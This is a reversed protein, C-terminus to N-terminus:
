HPKQNKVAEKRRMLLRRLFGVGQKKSPVIALTGVAANNDAKQKSDSKVNTATSANGNNNSQFKGDKIPSRLIIAKTPDEAIMQDRLSFRKSLNKNATTSVSTKFVKDLLAEERPTALAKLQKGLNLITEQCEALKLSAATIESSNQSQTGDGNISHNMTEKKAVSELQLQLELCTAELEECCNSKEELEVELSSLKQLVENLKAKAVTLQTDLDENMCKHNEMQDEIIGKSEKTTELEVQLNKISQESEQLQKMLTENKGIATQLKGDMAELDDKLRKNEEQLNYQISKSQSSINQDVLPLSSPKEVDVGAENESQSENQSFHRKIKDRANSADKPNVHNNLIWDLTFSLEEALSQLDTKGNLVANCTHVFRQLVASLESGKWQFVHVFYDAAIPSRSCSEEKKSMNDMTSNCLQPMPNIGEILQIIKCITKSLKSREKLSSDVGSAEILSDINPSMAATDAEPISSQNIYGLAIKIDELLETPSRKSIRQQKFIASLVEQLWDFSKDKSCIEQKDNVPVLEKGDSVSHNSGASSVLALKEMEVFDDMLSMDSKGESPSKFRADRFHELESILANAWSGSSSVGDDSGIDFGAFPSKLKALDMCRQGGSVEPLQAEVQSLKSATRSYMIRSSRLEANKRGLIEKLTRNEEEMGRLQEILFNINKVPIEPSREMKSDTLVLERTPNPKRRLEMQDKGHIEVENRMKALAAPGPLKKRMLVRLRQCEAELKSIKRVSELNQRHSAEASRRTYEMEENRVELEKELMHFEYRLFTNEKETSDLRTMLANVEAETRSLNKHMEEVLKEKLLLANSLNTNEIALSALKKNKETLKEELNKHTREFEGKAKMVADNIKQEQEAQSSSLQQKCQKLVEDLEKRLCIVESEAKQQGAVGEQALTEQKMALDDKGHSDLLVSALKENLNRAVRVSGVENAMPFKQTEEDTEKLSIGFKNTAIITKESSKKRWLWSKNDM